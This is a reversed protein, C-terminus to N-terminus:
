EEYRFFLKVDERYAIPHCISDILYYASAFIFITEVRTLPLYISFIILWFVISLSFLVVRELSLGAVGTQGTIIKWFLGFAGIYNYSAGEKSLLSEINFNEPLERHRIVGIDVKDNALWELLKVRRIGGPAVDMVNGDGVYMAVHEWYSRTVRRILYGIISNSKHYYVSDGKELLNVVTDPNDKKIRIWSTRLPNRDFQTRTVELIYPTCALAELFQPALHEETEIGDPICPRRAAILQYPLPAHGLSTYKALLMLNYPDDGVVRWLRFQMLWAIVILAINFLNWIIFITHAVQKSFLEGTLFFACILVLLYKSYSRM